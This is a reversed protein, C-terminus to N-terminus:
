QIGMSTSLWIGLIGYNELGYDDYPDDTISM